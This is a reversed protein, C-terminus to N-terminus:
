AVGDISSLCFVYADRIGVGTEICERRVGLFFCRHHEAIDQGCAELATNQVALHLGAVRDGNHAGARDSQGRQHGGLEVGRGCIKLMSRSSLRRFTAFLKPAVVNILLASPLATGRTM